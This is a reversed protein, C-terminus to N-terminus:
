RTLNKEQRVYHGIMPLTEQRSWSKHEEDRAFLVAVGAEQLSVEQLDSPPSLEFGVGIAIVGPLTKAAQVYPMFLQELSLGTTRGIQAVEDEDFEIHVAAMEGVDQVLAIMPHMSGGLAAEGSLCANESCNWEGIPILSQLSQLVNELSTFSHKELLILCGVTPHVGIM